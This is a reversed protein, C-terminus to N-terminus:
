RRTREGLPGIGLLVARTILPALVLSARGGFVAALLSVLAGVLFGYTERAFVTGPDGGNAIAATFYRGSYLGSLLIAPAWVLAPYPSFSASSLVAQVGIYAVVGVLLLWAPRTELWLGVLAGALWAGVVLAYTDHAASIARQLALLLGTQLLGLHVGTLFSRM